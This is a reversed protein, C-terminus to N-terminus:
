ETTSPAFTAADRSLFNFFIIKTKEKNKPLYTFIRKVMVLHVIPREIPNFVLEKVNLNVQSFRLKCSRM